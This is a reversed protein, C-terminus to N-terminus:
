VSEPLPTFASVRSLPPAVGPAIWISCPRWVTEAGTASCPSISMLGIAPVASLRFAGTPPIPLRTLRLAPSSIRPAALLKM